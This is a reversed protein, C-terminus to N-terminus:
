SPKKSARLAFRRFQRDRCPKFGCGGREFRPVRDLQAVPGIRLRWGQSHCHCFDLGRHRGSPGQQHVPGGSTRRTGSLLRHGRCQQRCREFRAEAIGRAHLAQLLRALLAKGIGQRRYAALLYLAGIRDAYAHGLGIIRGGDTAVLLAGDERLVQRWRQECEAVELAYAQAGFLPAYTEWDAKAHVRAIDPVDELTASRIEIM